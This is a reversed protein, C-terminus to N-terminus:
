LLREILELVKDRKFLKAYKRLKSKDLNSVYFRDNFSRKGIAVFYLYDVLAKESEAILIRKNDQVDM